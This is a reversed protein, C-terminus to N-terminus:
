SAKAAKTLQHRKNFLVTKNRGTKKATYLAEDAAVILSAKTKGDEVFSAIGLSLTCHFSGIESAFIEKRVSQRVREAIQIAAAADAEEMLIAFEEGGYRAVIDTKRANARLVKAVRMLVKDGVPHGYTDNISKFHDIDMLIISMKRGYRESRHLMADFAEQFCRHNMLGTLGDTTALQEMSENMQANAVAGAAQDAMVCLREFLERGLFDARNSGVILAGVGQDNWVLPLVKVGGLPLDLDRNFIYQNRSRTTGHPLCHRSKIAAGVLGDDAKFRAGVWKQAETAWDSEHCQVAAISMEGDVEGAVAFAAFAADTVRLAFEIAVQAVEPVTRTQNFSRSAGLFWETSIKERNMEGLIREVQIVRVIEESFTEMLEVDSSDFRTGDTRDALLVGRLHKGEFVPVGIFDTIACPRSYYVVGPHAPRIGTLLLPELRKTIAGVFGAAAGVPGETVCDAQSRLEKIRLQKGDLDLWLLAVTHSELTREAVALLKYLSEHIAQVSGAQQRRYLEQPPVEESSINLASTLRFAQAEHTMKELHADIESRLQHRQSIVEGRLFLTFLFAFLAIFSLHSVLIRWDDWLFRGEGAYGVLVTAEICVILVLFFTNEKFSHFAVLFAVIVYIIPYLLSSAGGSLDILAYAGVILLTGLELDYFSSPKKGVAQLRVRAFLRVVVFVCLGTLAFLQPAFHTGADRFSGFAILGLVGFAILFGALRKLLWIGTLVLWRMLAIIQGGDALRGRWSTAIRVKPAQDSM